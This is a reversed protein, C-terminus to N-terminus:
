IRTYFLLFYVINFINSLANNIIFILYSQEFVIFILKIWHAKLKIWKMFTSVYHSVNRQHFEFNRKDSVIPLAWKRVNRIKMLCFKFIMMRRKIPMMLSQYISCHPLLLALYCKWQNCLESHRCVSHRCFSQFFNSIKGLFKRLKGMSSSSPLATSIIKPSIGAQFM